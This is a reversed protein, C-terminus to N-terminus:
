SDAEADEEEKIKEMDELSYGLTQVVSSSVTYATEEEGKVQLYYDEGTASGIWLVTEEGDEPRLTVTYAPDELGYDERADISELKRTATLSSFANAIAEPYSQELEMKKDNTCIWEGDKKEFDLAEAGPEEYSFAELAGLDTVQVIQSEEEAKAKEEARKNGFSLAAYVVALAALVAALILIQKKKM